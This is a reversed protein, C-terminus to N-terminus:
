KTATEPKGIPVIFAAVDTDDEPKAVPSERLFAFASSLSAGALVAGLARLDLPKVDM